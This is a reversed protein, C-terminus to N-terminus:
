GLKVVMEIGVARYPANTNIETFKVPVLSTLDMRVAKNILAWGSGILSKWAERYLLMRRGIQLDEGRDSVCIIAHLTIEEIVGGGAKDLVQINSVGYYVFPDYNAIADNMTQFFYAENDVTKLTLSHSNSSNQEAIKTNLNAKIFSEIGDVLDVLTIM